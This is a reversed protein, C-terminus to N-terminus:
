FVRRFKALFCAGAPLYKQTLVTVEAIPPAGVSPVRENVVSVVIEIM